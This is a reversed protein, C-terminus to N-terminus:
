ADKTGKEDPITASLRIRARKAGLAQGLEQATTAIIEEVSSQQQLKAIIENALAKNRAQQQTQVYAEANSLTVAIQNVMQRMATLDLDDYAEEQYNGVEAIGLIQGRVMIPCAIVTRLVNDIPHKWDWDARLNDIQVIEQEDWATLAVTNTARSVPEGPLMVAHEGDRYSATLRLHGAARDYLLISFYDSPMITQSFQLAIKLIERVELTTQVFQGFETIQRLQRAQRQTRKLLRSRQLNVAVQAVITQALDLDREDFEAIPEFMDLGVSGLLHQRSDLLPLFVGAKFGAELLERQIEPNIATSQAIDPLVLPAKRAQLMQIITDEDVAMIQRGVRDQSPSEAVVTTTGGSEDVLTIGVHDVSTAQMLVEAARQLLAQENRQQSDSRIVDNLLRLVQVERAVEQAEAQTVALVQRSTLVLNIQTQATELLRLLPQSFQQPQHWAINIHRVVQGDELFPITIYAQVSQALLKDHNPLPRKLNHLDPRVDIEAGQEQWYGVIAAREEANMLAYADLDSLVRGDHLLRQQVIYSKLDGQDDYRMASIGMTSPRPEVYAQLVRLLGLLDQTAVIDSTLQYLRQTAARERQAAQLLNQKEVAVAAQQILNKYIAKEVDSILLRKQTDVIVVFADPTDDPELPLAYWSVVQWESFWQQEDDTLGGLQTVDELLWAGDKHLRAQMEQVLEPRFPASRLEGYARQRNASAIIDLRTIDAEHQFQCVAVFQRPEVMYEALVNIVASLSDADALAATTAIQRSLLNQLHHNELLLGIQQGLMDVVSNTAEDPVRELSLDLLATVNIRYMPVLMRYPEANTTLISRKSLAQEALPVDDFMVPQGVTVQDDTTAWVLLNDAVVRYVRADQLGPLSNVMAPLVQALLAEPHTANQGDMSWSLNLHPYSM